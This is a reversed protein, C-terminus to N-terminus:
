ASLKTFYLACLLEADVPDGSRIRENLEALTIPVPAIAEDAEPASDGLATV